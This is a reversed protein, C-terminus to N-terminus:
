LSSKGDMAKKKFTQVPVYQLTMQIVIDFEKEAAIDRLTNNYVLYWSSIFMLSFTNLFKVAIERVYLM